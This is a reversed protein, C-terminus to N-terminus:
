RGPAPAAQRRRSPPRVSRSPARRPATRAAAQRDLQNGRPRVLRSSSSVSPNVDPTTCAAAQLNFHDM